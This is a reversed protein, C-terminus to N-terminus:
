FFSQKATSVSPLLVSAPKGEEEKMKEKMGQVDKGLMGKRRVGRVRRSTAVDERMKKVNGRVREYAKFVEETRLCIM